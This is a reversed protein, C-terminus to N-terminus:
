AQLSYEVLPPTAEDFGLEARAVAGGDASRRLARLDPNLVAREDESPERGAPRVTVRNERELAILYSLVQRAAAPWMAQAVDVYIAAVLAPITAPGRGLQTLISAEREERHHIYFAITDAPTRIEPGHGGYIAQADGFEDRLRHLTHQYVRMDGGPPAVITTGRGLIVDGTFLAREDELIFILHDVAHGPGEIALVSATGATIREGERLTRDHPFRAGPHAVVPAGTAAALPAAGPFHDPHGHTVLIASFRANREAAAAIFSEIHEPM